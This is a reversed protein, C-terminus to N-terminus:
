QLGLSTGVSRNFISPSGLSDGEPMPLAESVEQSLTLDVRDDSYVTPTVSLIIGTKRYQISQLLSSTGDTQQPSTNRSTIIPVETGVDIRAEEGSKVMLRPTSLITVRQDNAYARLM